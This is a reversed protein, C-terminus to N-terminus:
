VSHALGQVSGVLALFVGRPDDSGNQRADIADSPRAIHATL